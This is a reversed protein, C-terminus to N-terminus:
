PQPPAIIQPAPLAAGALAPADPNGNDMCDKIQNNRADLTGERQADFAHNPMPAFYLGNQGTRALGNLNDQQYVADAQQTCNALNAQEAPSSPAAACGALLGAPLLVCALRAWILMGTGAM